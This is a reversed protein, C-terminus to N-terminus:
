QNWARDPIIMKKLTNLYQQTAFKSRKTCIKQLSSSIRLNKNRLILCKNPCRIQSVRHRQKSARKTIFIQWPLTICTKWATITEVQSHHLNCLIQQRPMYNIINSSSLFDMIWVAQLTLPNLLQQTFWPITKGEPQFGRKWLIEHCFDIWKIM